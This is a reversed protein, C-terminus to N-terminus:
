LSQNIRLILDSTLRKVLDKIIKNELNLTDYTENKNDFNSTGTFNEDVIIEDSSIKKVVARINIQLKYSVIKGSQDKVLSTKNKSANVSLVIKELGDLNKQGRKINEALLNAINKDGKKQINQIKFKLNKESFIPTYGGCNSLFCVLITMIFIKKLNKM